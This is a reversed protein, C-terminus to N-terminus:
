LPGAGSSGTSALVQRPSPSRSTTTRAPFASARWELIPPANRYDRQTYVDAHVTRGTMASILQDESTDAIPRDAVLKGDRLVSITDAIM